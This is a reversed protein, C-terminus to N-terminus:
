AFLYDSLKKIARARHSIQNKVEVGLEAFTKGMGEPIFVPDYGFGQTGRKEGTITGEVVGEFLYESGDDEILAIVTRFRARRDSKNKLEALLKQTNAEPDHRDPYAYRATHVGPAGGLVSVELGTDDAFCRRGTKEFVYRAKQLANGELTDATEPIDETIGIESLGLVHQRGDFMDRVEDLKHQNNTAFIIPSPAQQEEGEVALAVVLPIGGIEAATESFSSYHSGIVKRTHALCFLDVVAEEMGELTDRRVHPTHQVLVHGPYRKMMSNKVSGDDTALFFMTYPDSSLERDMLRIFMDDTSYECASQNDTRRIHVGVINEPFEGVIGDIREKLERNPQLGEILSSSYDSFQYGTSLYVNKYAKLIEKLARDKHPRYYNLQKDYVALRFLAPLYLNKRRVPKNWWRRPVISFNEELAPEFLDSFGAFCEKDRGWEVRVFVNKETQALDYASLVTRLRNCLGGMPVVTLQKM